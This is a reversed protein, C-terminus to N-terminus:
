ITVKSIHWNKFAFLNNILTLLILNIIKRALAFLNVKYLGMLLLTLYCHQQFLLFYRYLFMIKRRRCTVM